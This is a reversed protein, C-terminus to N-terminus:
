IGVYQKEGNSKWTTRKKQNMIHIGEDERMESRGEGRKKGELCDVTGAMEFKSKGHKGLCVIWELVIRM